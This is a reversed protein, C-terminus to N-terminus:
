SYGGTRPSQQGPYYPASGQDHITRALEMGDIVGPMQIDTFLVRVDPRTKM